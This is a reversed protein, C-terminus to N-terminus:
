AAPAGTLAGQPSLAARVQRRVDPLAAAVAPSLALEMPQVSAISVTILTITPLARTLQTAEVMDRLGIDHASLSRPFDSAYTPRLVTVTGPEQGDMTADIMVIEGHTHLVELLHFGGTGGDLLAVDAPWAEAALTEIAHVGVGEDGMLLNGIGLVLRQSM